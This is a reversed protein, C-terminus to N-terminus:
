NISSVTYGIFAGLKPCPPIDCGALIVALKFRTPNVTTGPVNLYFGDKWAVMMEEVFPEIFTQVPTEKAMSPRIGM